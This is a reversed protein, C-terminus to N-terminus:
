KLCGNLLDSYNSKFEYAYNNPKVHIRNKAVKQAQTNPRYIVEGMDVINREYKITFSLSQTNKKRLYLKRRLYIGFGLSGICILMLLIESAIILINIM